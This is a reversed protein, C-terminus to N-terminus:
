RCGATGSVSTEAVGSRIAPRGCRPQRRRTGKAPEHTEDGEGAQGPVVRAADDREVAQGELQLGPDDAQDAGVAGALAREDLDEEPEELRRGAVGRDHTEVHAGLARRDPLEDAVHGLVVAQRRVRRGGVEHSVHRPHRTQRARGGALPGGLDEAMDPQVLLAVARDTAIRGAHLLPDLEGLREDVVRSQQQEILRGVPEVRGSAVLHQPENSPGAGFEPDGHDHGAVQEALDLPHAVEEDGDIGPPQEPRRREPREGLPGADQGDLDLLALGGQGPREDASPQLGDGVSPRDEDRDGVVLREVDDAVRDRLQAQRQDPELLAPLAELVQEAVRRRDPRGTPSGRRGRAAPAGAAGPLPTAGPLPPAGPHAAAGSRDAVVDGAEALPGPPLM